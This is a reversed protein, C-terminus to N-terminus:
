SLFPIPFLRVQPQPSSQGGDDMKQHDNCVTKDSTFVGTSGDVGRSSSGARSPSQAMTPGGDLNDKHEGMKEHRSGSIFFIFFLIFLNTTLIFKKLSHFNLM